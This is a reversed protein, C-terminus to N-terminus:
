RWTVEVHDTRQHPLHIADSPASMVIPGEVVQPPEPEVYRGRRLYLDNLGVRPRDPISVLRGTAVEAMGARNSETLYSESIGSGGFIDAIKGIAIVRGSLPPPDSATSASITFTCPM